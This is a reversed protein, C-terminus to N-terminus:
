GSCSRNEEAKRRRLSCKLLEKVAFDCQFIESIENRPSCQFIAAQEPGDEGGYSVGARHSGVDQFYVIGDDDSELDSGVYVLTEVTPILMERDVYTVSFYTEGISLQDFRVPQAYPELEVAEFRMTKM